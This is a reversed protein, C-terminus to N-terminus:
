SRILTCLTDTESRTNIFPLFTIIKSIRLGRVLHRYGLRLVSSLIAMSTDWQNRRDAPFRRLCQRKLQLLRM